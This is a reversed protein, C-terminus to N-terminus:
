GQGTRRGSAAVKRHGSGNARQARHENGQSDEGSYPFGSKRLQVPSYEVVRTNNYNAM